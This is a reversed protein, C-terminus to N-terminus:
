KIENERPMLGYFLFKTSEMILDHAKNYKLILNEDKLMVYIYDLYKLIFEIKIDSRIDGNKQSKKLFDILNLMSEETYKEVYEKLGLDPNSYIDNIFEYSINQSGEHKMLIMKNVKEAFELDSALIDKFQYMATSIVKDLITKALDVKNSFLRYFTMKSVGAERCIEEITVRKIGFKWFLDKGTKQINKYKENNSYSM